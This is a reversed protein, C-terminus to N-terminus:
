RSRSYLDIIRNIAKQCVACFPVDDRSFMVCDTQPRFYGKSQYNAGEFAGVQGAYKESALMKTLQIKEEQFLADMESEPRREARIQKRRKQIGAQWTEFEQKDWPTPISVGPSALDGWKLRAPDHLGTVNPEWPEPRGSPSEYATPSTFYEDGLGALHHGLEHVFIYAAWLTDSAVTSYLNFIGGGGYTQENVVIAVHDYPAWAAIERMARNDFTLLYRESGFADYATGV